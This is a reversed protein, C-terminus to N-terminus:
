YPWPPPVFNNDFGESEPFSVSNPPIGTDLWREMASLATLLQRSTFVCHGVAKVYVQHLYQGSGWWEVAKRYVSEHSTESLNDVTTHMTLTPKRLLGRLGGFREAYDRSCPAGSVNTRANMRALLEDANVGLTALYAKEEPSLSYHHDLNQVFPGAAYGENLARASTAFALNLLWGPMNYVPNTGWFAEASIGRVLRIFEWGGRNSGDAKPVNAYPLVMTQFNLGANLDELPGWKDEPWGFTVAYALAFDFHREMTRSFGGAPSCTAIAGDFARPYDEIMKLSSLGGASTGWLIVRKPDGVRGRFYSTLALSDEVAEKVQMDVSGADSAALAYGASLLAEELAPESGPVVPPVLPPETPQTSPKTGQLYVLLTGNWNSPVRIKFMASDLLGTQNFPLTERLEGGSVQAEM